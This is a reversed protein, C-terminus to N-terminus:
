SHLEKVRGLQIRRTQGNISFAVVKYAREGRASPQRNFSIVGQRVAGTSREVVHLTPMHVLFRPKVLWNKDLNPVQVDRCALAVALVEPPISLLDM